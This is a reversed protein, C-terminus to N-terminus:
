DITTHPSGNRYKGFVKRSFGLNRTFWRDKGISRLLRTIRRIDRLILGLGYDAFIRTKRDALKPDGIHRFMELTMLCDVQDAYLEFSLLGIAFKAQSFIIHNWQLHNQVDIPDEQNVCEQDIWIFSV